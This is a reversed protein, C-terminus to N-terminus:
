EDDYQALSRILSAASKVDANDEFKIASITPVVYKLITEYSKCYKDDELMHLRKVYTPFEDIVLNRLLARIETNQNKVGKKRGSDPAKAHGKEFASM